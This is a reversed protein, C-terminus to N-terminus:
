HCGSCGSCSGACGSPTQTDIMGELMLGNVHQVLGRFAAQARTLSVYAPSEMMTHWAREMDDNRTALAAPDPADQALLEMLASRSARYAQQLAVAGADQTLAARARALAQYEPSERLAANLQRAKRDIM